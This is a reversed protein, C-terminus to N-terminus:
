PRNCYGNYAKLPIENGVRAWARDDPRHRYRLPSGKIVYRLM